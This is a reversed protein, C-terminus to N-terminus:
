YEKRELVRVSIKYSICTEIVLVAALVVGTAWPSVSSLANVIGYILTEMEASSNILQNAVSKVAILLLMAAVVIGVLAMRGKDGGFKLQIPIIIMEFALIVALIMLAMLVMETFEEVGLILYAATSLCWLGLIGLIGFVYKEKVYDKRTIPLTLLFATGYDYDDYSITTLVFMGGMLTTYSIIFPASDAGQSFYFFVFMFLIIFFMKAQQMTFRFDKILLGKM